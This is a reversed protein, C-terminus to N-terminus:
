LQIPKQKPDIDIPTLINVIHTYFNDREKESKFYMYTRDKIWEFLIYWRKENDCHEWGKIIRACHEINLIEDTETNRIRFNSM